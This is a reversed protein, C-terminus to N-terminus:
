DEGDCPLFTWERRYAQLMVDAQQVLNRLRKQGHKKDLDLDTARKGRTTDLELIPLKPLRSCSVLLM